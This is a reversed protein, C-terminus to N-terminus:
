EFDSLNDFFSLLDFDRTIPVPLCFDSYRTSVQITSCIVALVTIVVLEVVITVIVAGFSDYFM